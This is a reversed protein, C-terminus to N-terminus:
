HLLLSFRRVARGDSDFAEDVDRAVPIFGNHELAKMSPENTAVVWARLETLHLVEKAYRCLERVILNGFGKGRNQESGIYYWIEAADTAINKFGANGIYQDDAIVALYVGRKGQLVEDFFHAHATPTPRQRGAFQALYWPQSVWEYVQDQDARTIPRFEVSLKQVVKDLSREQDCERGCTDGVASEGWRM